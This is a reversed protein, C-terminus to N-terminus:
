YRKSLLRHFRPRVLKPDRQSNDSGTKIPRELPHRSTKQVGVDRNNATSERFERVPSDQEVLTNNLASDAKNPDPSDGRHSTQQDQETM